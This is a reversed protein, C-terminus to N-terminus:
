APSRGSRYGAKRRPVRCASGTRPVSLAAVPFDHSLPVHQRPRADPWANGHTPLIGVSVREDVVSKRLRNLEKWSATMLPTVMVYLASPVLATSTEIPEWWVALSPLGLFVGAKAAVICLQWKLRTTIMKNLDGQARFYAANM